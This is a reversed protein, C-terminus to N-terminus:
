RIVSSRVSRACTLSFKTPKSVPTLKCAADVAMQLLTLAAKFDDSM